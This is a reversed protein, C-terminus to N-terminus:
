SIPAEIKIDPDYEYIRTTKSKTGAEDGDSEEKRILGDSKGIWYKTITTITGVGEVQTDMRSRLEYIATSTGDLM